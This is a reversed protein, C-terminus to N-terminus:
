PWGGLLTSAALGSACTLTKLNRRLAQLWAQGRFYWFFSWAVGILLLLWVLHVVGDSM